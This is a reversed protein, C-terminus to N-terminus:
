QNPEKAYKVFIKPLFHELEEQEFSSINGFIEAFLFFLSALFVVLAIEPLTL